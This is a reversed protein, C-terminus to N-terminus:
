QAPAEAAKTGGPAQAGRILPAPNDSLSNLYAMLDAREAPRTIGAFTMATGPVMGKPSTVFTFLDAITWAGNQSKMAPSYNFGEVSHKQRGVVGWLPPGVMTKGNKEFSHCAACKKSSEEGRGIDAKVLLEDLPVEPEKPAPEGPKGKPVDIEFGPKGLHGPAFVAGSAINLAVLGLCTALVAGLVKNLEFSDFVAPSRVCISPQIPAIRHHCLYGTQWAEPL